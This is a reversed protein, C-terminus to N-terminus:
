SQAAEAIAARTREATARWSFRRALNRGRTVLADRQQPNRLLRAVGGAIASPDAPDVLLAAEGFIENLSPRDAAVVPLGRSMAELAPLGFGEYDSLCLALDAAAYLDALAAESVFGEFRVRPGLGLRSALSLFDRRPHTRNEGVVHLRLNPFAPALLAVAHLLEPLRRRNFLSGVALLLPGDAELGERAAARPPPTPLDDDPGLPIHLTRPAVDPFRRAIERRTFESCALVRASAALSARTLIRRRTGEVPSFDAPLAFFSLDHVATVRPVRLSLPCSYAPSFFVDLADGSAVRPLLLEQFVLAHPAPGLARLRVGPAQLLEDKPPPGDFYAILTDSGIATWQRLLNRLYRGTGTPRGQLERADVGIRL